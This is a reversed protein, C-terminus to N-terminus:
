ASPKTSETEWAKMQKDLIFPGFPVLSAIFVIAARKFSWNHHLMVQLLSWCFIVFLVGHAWGVLKVALPQGWVYKLPMAIGLLLLFSVGEILAIRRLFSINQMLALSCGSAALIASLSPNSGEDGILTFVSELRACEVM